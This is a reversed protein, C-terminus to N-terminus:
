VEDQQFMVYRTVNYEIPSGMGFETWTPTYTDTLTIKVFSSVVQASACSDPSTVYTTSADCRYAASVTVKDPALGSSAEIVQEVTTRKADTDPAAALAIAAAESAANQLDTQRAVVGSAQFAGLALLILVPAVIATEILMAGRDDDYLRGLPVRTLMM